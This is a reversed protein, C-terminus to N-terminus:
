LAAAGIIGAENGLAAAAIVPIAGQRQGFCHDAVYQRMPALIREGQRCVGGGLLIMEPALANVLDTLGAAVYECWRDVVAKATEDGADICRFISVGDLTDQRALLSDPHAEAARTAQRILATMSAYAEWCGNRGCSCPEGDMVLVTHGLEAGASRMGAYIKGDIIIGGGVGTGLTVMVVNQMGKAAGAVVEALAACNADNSLRVPIGFRDHLTECVPVEFWGLNYARAVVGRESDCTGPSGIGISACEAATLGAKQLAMDVADGLDNVMEQWPRFAGTPLSAQSLLQFNDDIIGAAINTGGLDIGIRYM